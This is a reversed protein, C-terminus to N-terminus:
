VMVVMGEEKNKNISLFKLKIPKFEKCNDCVM